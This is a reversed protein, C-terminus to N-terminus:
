CKSRSGARHTGYEDHLKLKIHRKLLMGDMKMTMGEMDNTACPALGVVVLLIRYQTIYDVNAIKRIVDGNTEM